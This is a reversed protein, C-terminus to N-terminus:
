TKRHAGWKTKELKKEYNFFVVGRNEVFGCAGGFLAYKTFSRRGLCIGGGLARHDWISRSLFPVRWGIEYVEAPRIFIVMSSWIVEM